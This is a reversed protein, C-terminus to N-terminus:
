PAEPLGAQLRKPLGARILRWSVRVRHALEDEAAGLPVAVWSRHLYPARAALGAEILMAATEPSDTKVSVHTGRAGVLAFIKGGLKWADHGGDWPHELVAGPM